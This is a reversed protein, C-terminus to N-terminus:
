WRGPDTGMNLPGGHAKYREFIRWRRSSPDFPNVDSSEYANRAADQDESKRISAGAGKGKTRIIPSTRLSM